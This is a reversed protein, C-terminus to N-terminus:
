VEEPTYLCVGNKVTHAVTTEHPHAPMNVGTQHYDIHERHQHHKSRDFIMRVDLTELIIYFTYFLPYLM